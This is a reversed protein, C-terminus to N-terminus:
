GTPQGLEGAAAEDLIWVANGRRALQVPLRQPDREDGLAQRLVPAKAAGSVVVVIQRAEVLVGPNLTVREVHPEIHTPAPIALALAKSAFAASNPFVSFLHGDAGVGVLIVDFIPWNGSRELGAAALEEALEAACGAAGRGAGIAESTPFPHLHHIPLSVPRPAGATGMGVRGEETYGIAMLIDDFAKVNSLPHDRPVFRDDAWWVHIGAWPVQDRLPAEALRRYIPPAVSGGTTAWHAQGRATVSDALTMAIRRAAETAAADPDPVIMLEPEDKATV